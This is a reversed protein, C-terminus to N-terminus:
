GSGTLMGIIAAIFLFLAAVTFIVMLEIPMVGNINIVSNMKLWSTWFVTSFLYIGIPSIQKSIFVLVVAGALGVGVALGWLSAMGGDLGSIQELANDVTVEEDTPQAEYANFAGLSNVFNISLTFVIIALCLYISTRYFTAM